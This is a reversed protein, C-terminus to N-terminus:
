RRQRRRMLLPTTAAIMLAATQRGIPDGHMACDCGSDGHAQASGGDLTPGGNADVKADKGAERM